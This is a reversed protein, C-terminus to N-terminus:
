GNDYRIYRTCSEFMKIYGHISISSSGVVTFRRFRWVVYLFNGILYAIQKQQAGTTLRSITGLYIITEEDRSIILGCIQKIRERLM